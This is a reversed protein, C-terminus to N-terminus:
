FCPCLAERPERYYITFLEEKTKKDIYMKRKIYPLFLYIGFRKREIIKNVEEGNRDFIKAKNRELLISAYLESFFLSSCNESTDFIEHGIVVITDNLSEQKKRLIFRKLADKNYLLVDSNNLIISFFSATDTYITLKDCTFKIIQGNPEYNVKIRQGSVSFSLLILGFILFSIIYKKKETM